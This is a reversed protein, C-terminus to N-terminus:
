SGCAWESFKMTRDVVESNLPFASTVDVYSSALQNAFIVLVAMLVQARDWGVQLYHLTFFLGLPGLCLLPWSPLPMAKLQRSHAQVKCGRGIVFM